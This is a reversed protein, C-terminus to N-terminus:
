LRMLDSTVPIKLKTLLSQYPLVAEWKWPLTCRIMTLTHIEM